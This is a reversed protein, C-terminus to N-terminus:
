KSEATRPEKVKKILWVASIGAFLIYILFVLSYGWKSIIAGAAIGFIAFPATITNLLAIYFQREKPSCLEIVFPIRSIGLLSLTIGWFFFVMGYSLINNAVIATTSALLSTISLIILNIKHGSVDALYGFFLNGVIMSATSIITFTGAYSVPLDFRKLAFVPYFATATICMSILADAILFNRFPVNTRLVNKVMVLKNTIPQTKEEDLVEDDEKLRSLFYFSVMTFIFAALFLIAFNSPFNITSLIIVTLSGAAMALISGILQRVALLRGRLKIPTTKSFLHVWAPITISGVLATLFFLFLLSLVANFQSLSKLIFFTFLAIVLYMVRFLLAYRLVFPKIRRETYRIKTFFLQPLNLGMIWLVPVAGIAVPNGGAQQIFVPIITFASVFNAGFVFMAGDAVNMVLNHRLVKTEFGPFNDIKFIRSLM